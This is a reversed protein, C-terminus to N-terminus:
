NYPFDSEPSDPLFYGPGQQLVAAGDTYRRWSPLAARAM